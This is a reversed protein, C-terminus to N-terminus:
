LELSFAAPSNHDIHLLEAPSYRESGTVSNLGGIGKVGYSAAM